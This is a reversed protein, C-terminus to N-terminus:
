FRSWDKIKKICEKINGSAMILEGVLAANFNNEKLCDFDNEGKLGSESVKIIDKPLLAALKSGNERDVKFSTLDRNNIGIITNIGFDIKKLEDISHIELLVDLGTEEACHTLEKIQGASLAESILLVADAGNSKAEYIQIEDIIFDKRLLPVTKFSAIDRLYDISGKFFNKDTLISVADVESEFFVDAIKLHNFDEKILGKSPSAKKIEAILAISDKKILADKFGPSLKTFYESDSFRALSFERKLIKVEDKKVEIIEDLINM